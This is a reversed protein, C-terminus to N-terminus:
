ALFFSCGAFFFVRKGLIPARGRALCQETKEDDHLGDENHRWSLFGGECDVHFTHGKHPEGRM